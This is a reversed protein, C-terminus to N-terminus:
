CVTAIAELWHPAFAALASGSWATIGAMTMGFVFRELLGAITGFRALVELGIPNAGRRIAVATSTGRFVTGVSVVAAAVLHSRALPRTLLVLATAAIMETTLTLVVLEETQIVQGWAYHEIAFTLSTLFATRLNAEVANASRYALETFFVPIALYAFAAVKPVSVVSQASCPLKDYYVYNYLLPLPAALVGCAVVRSWMVPRFHTSTVYEAVHALM